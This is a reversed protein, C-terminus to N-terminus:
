KVADPDEAFFIRDSDEPWITTKPTHKVRRNTEENLIKGEVKVNRAIETLTREEMSVKCVYQVLDYTFLSGKESNSIGKEGKDTAMLVAISDCDRIESTEMITVFDGSFCSDLILNIKGELSNEGEGWICECLKLYSYSMPENIGWRYAPEGYGPAYKVNTDTNETGHGSWYLYTVDNYDIKAFYDKIAEYIETWTGNDVYEVDINEILSFAQIIQTKNIYCRDVVDEPENYRNIVCLARYETVNKTYQLEAEEVVAYRESGNNMYRLCVLGSGITGVVRMACNTVDFERDGDAYVDMRNNLRKGRNSWCEKGVHDGSTDVIMFALGYSYPIEQGDAAVAYFTAIYGGTSEAPITVMFGDAGSEGEYIEAATGAMKVKAYVTKAGSATVKYQRSEGLKTYPLDTLCEVSIEIEEPTLTDVLNSDAAVFYDKGSVSVYKHTDAYTGLITVQTGYAAIDALTGDPRDLLEIPEAAYKVAQADAKKVAYVPFEKTRGEISGYYPTFVYVTKGSAAIAGSTYAFEGDEPAIETESGGNASVKVTYKESSVRGSFSPAAGTYRISYQKNGGERLSSIEPMSVSVTVSEGEGDAHTFDGEETSYYPTLVYKGVQEAAPYFVGNEPAYLKETWDPATVLLRVSKTAGGMAVRTHMTDGVNYVAGDAPAIIEVGAATEEVEFTVSSSSQSYGYGSAIIEILYEGDAYLLDGPITMSTGSTTSRETNSRPPWLLEDRYLYVTYADANEVADWTVDFSKGVYQTDVAHIVPDALKGSDTVILTQASCSAGWANGDYAQFAVERTGSKTFVREIVAIGGTLAYENYAFGDVVLRVKQAGQATVAFTVTDGVTVGSSPVAAGNLQMTFSPIITGEGPALTAIATDLQTGKVPSVDVSSPTIAYLDHEYSVAYSGGSTVACQWAGNRDTYDFGVWEGDAKNQVYVSVNEVPTGNALTVKGSLSVTKVEPEEDRGPFPATSFPIGNEKAYTEAYSGSEGYITFGAAVSDFATVDISTVSDPIYVMALTSCNAFAERGISVLTDPLEISALTYSDAFAKDDIMTVPTDSIEDPLFMVIADGNYNTIKVYTQYITCSLGDPEVMDGNYEVRIDRAIAYNAATSNKACVITLDSIGAFSTDHIDRVGSPIYIRKLNTCGAFCDSELSHVGEHLEVSELSTCGDFLSFNITTVNEPIAVKKLSTCGSFANYWFESISSPFDVAELQTCGEFAAIGIETMGQPLTVSKLSACGKFTSEPLTELSAPITISELGSGSFVYDGMSMLSIPLKLSELRKCEAFAYSGITQLADPLKLSNVQNCGAFARTDITLLTDPLEVNMLNSCNEFVRTNLCTISEPLSIGTLGSYAFAASEISKVSEPIEITQLSSCKNFAAVGIVQVGNEIVVSSLSACSDFVQSGMTALTAPLNIQKLKKCSKFSYNDITQVNSPITISEVMNCFGFADEGISELSKPLSIERFPCSVFASNPIHRVGEPITIRQVNMNAFAYYASTCNLPFNIEYMQCAIFCYDGLMTISDPLVIKRLSTCNAFGFDGISELRNPLTIERLGSQDEFAKDAITKVTKGEIEDPIVLEAASGTYGTIEAYTDHLTYKLGEPVGVSDTYEIEIDNELAHAEAATNHACVITLKACLDFADEGISSVSDPIAIRELNVCGAFARVGIATAGDPIAVSTIAANNMFSEEGIVTLASPLQLVEEAAAPLVGLVSFLLVLGILLSIRSKLNTRKERTEYTMMHEM